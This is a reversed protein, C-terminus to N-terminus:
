AWLHVIVDKITWISPQLPLSIQQEDMSSILSDWSELQEALAQLIHEKLNM